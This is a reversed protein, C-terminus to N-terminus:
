IISDQLIQRKLLIYRRSWSPTASAGFKNETRVQGHLESKNRQTSMTEGYVASLRAALHQEDYLNAAAPLQLSLGLSRGLIIKLQRPSNCRTCYGLLMRGTFM